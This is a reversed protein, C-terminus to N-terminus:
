RSRHKIVPAKTPFSFSTPLALNFIFTDSNIVILLCELGIKLSRFYASIILEISLTNIASRLFIYNTTNFIAVKAYLTSLFQFTCKEGPSGMCKLPHFPLISHPLWRIVQTTKFSCRSRAAPKHMYHSYSWAIRILDWHDKYAKHHALIKWGSCVEWYLSAHTGM